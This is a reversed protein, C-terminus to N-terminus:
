LISWGMSSVELYQQQIAACIFHNKESDYVSVTNSLLMNRYFMALSIEHIQFIKLKEAM